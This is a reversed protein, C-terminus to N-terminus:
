VTLRVSDILDELPMGFMTLFITSPLPVCFAQYLEVEGRDIFEDILSNALRRVVPELNFSLDRLSRITDRHRELASQTM